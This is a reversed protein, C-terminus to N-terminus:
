NAVLDNRTGLFESKWMGSLRVKSSHLTRGQGAGSLEQENREGNRGCSDWRSWNPSGKDSLAPLETISCV